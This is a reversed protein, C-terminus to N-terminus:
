SLPGFHEALFSQAEDASMRPHSVAWSHQLQTMRDRVIQQARRDLFNAASTAATLISGASLLEGLAFEHRSRQDESPETGFVEKRQWDLFRQCEQSWRDVEKALVDTTSAVLNKAVPCDSVAASM